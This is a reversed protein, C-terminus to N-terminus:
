WYFHNYVRIVRGSRTDVLLVDDYHRVYRYHRYAPAPLRYASWNNVYYRSGWYSRPAQMGISFSRYAFPARWTGRRYTDRHSERWRQWDERRDERRDQRIDRRADHRADRRDDRWERHNNGRHEQASAAVPALTAAILAGTLLIKNM